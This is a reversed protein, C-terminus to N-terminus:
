RFFLFLVNYTVWKITIGTENLSRSLAMTAQDFRDHLRKELDQCDVQSCQGKEHHHTLQDFTYKRIKPDALAFRKNFTDESM